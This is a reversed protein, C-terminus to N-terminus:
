ALLWTVMDTLESHDNPLILKLDETDLRANFNAWSIEDKDIGGLHNEITGKIWIYIGVSLMKTKLSTLNAQIIAERALLAFAESAKM